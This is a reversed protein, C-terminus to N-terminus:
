QYQFLIDQNSRIVNLRHSIEVTVLLNCVIVVYSFLQDVLDPGSACQANQVDACSM